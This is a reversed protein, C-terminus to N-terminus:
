FLISEGTLALSLSALFDPSPEWAGDIRELVLDIKTTELPAKDLAQQMLDNAKAMFGATLESFSADYTGLNNIAEIAHDIVPGLRKASITVTATATDGELIVEGVSYEFGELWRAIYAETDLGITSLEVLNSEITNRIMSDADKISELEEVFRDSAASVENQGCGSLASALLFALSISFGLQVIMKKLGYEGIREQRM